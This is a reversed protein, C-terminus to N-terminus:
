HERSRRIFEQALTSDRMKAVLEVRQRGINESAARVERATKLASSLLCLEGILQWNGAGFARCGHAAIPLDVHGLAPAVARLLFTRLTARDRVVGQQVLGELGFSHAYSGTPYFSDGTQLLGGLWLAVNSSPAAQSSTAAERTEPVVRDMQELDPPEVANGYDREFKATDM